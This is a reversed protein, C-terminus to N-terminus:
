VRRRFWGTLSLRDRTAPLVEHLMDASLFMAIRGAVPLIDRAGMADATGDLHLRLAGGHQPLWDTNLYVIVSVVRSDDDRFRDRHQKYSAGPPYFAFHSEYEDLGLFLERNLGVRLTEMIALYQDCADSQGAQLWQIQDGRIEPQLTRAAGQGVGARTLSGAAALAACEQALTVVLEPPLFADHEAWGHKHVADAIQRHLEDARTESHAPLLMRTVAQEM